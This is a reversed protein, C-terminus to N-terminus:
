GIIEAGLALLNKNYNSNFTLVKRGKGLLEKCLAETKSGPSAYPVLIEDALASVFRNRRDARKSSVRNERNSFPSLILLRGAEIPQRFEKKIRM